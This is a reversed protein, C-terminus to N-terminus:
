HLHSKMDWARFYSATFIRHISEMLLNHLFGTNNINRPIGNSYESFDLAKCGSTSIIDFYELREELKM